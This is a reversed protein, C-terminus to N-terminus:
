DSFGELKADNVIDEIGNDIQFLVVQVDEDSNILAISQNILNDMVDDPLSQRAVHFFVRELVVRLDGTLDRNSLSM